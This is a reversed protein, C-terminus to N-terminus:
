RGGYKKDRLKKKVLRIAKGVEGVVSEIDLEMRTETTGRRIANISQAIQNLNIGVKHLQFIADKLIEMEAGIAATTQIKNGLTAEIMLRSMSLGSKESLRKIARHESEDARVTFVKPLNNTKWARKAKEKIEKEM